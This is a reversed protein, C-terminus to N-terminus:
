QVVLHTGAVVQVSVRRRGGKKKTSERRRTRAATGDAIASSRTAVIAAIRDRSQSIGLSMSSAVNFWNHYIHLESITLCLSIM